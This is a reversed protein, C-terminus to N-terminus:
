AIPAAGTISALWAYDVRRRGGATRVVVAWGIRDDWDISMVAAVVDTRPWFLRLILRSDGDLDLTLLRGGRRVVTERVALPGHDRLHAALREVRMQNLMGDLEAADTGHHTLHVNGREM